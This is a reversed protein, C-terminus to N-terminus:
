FLVSVVSGDRLERSMDVRYKLVDATRWALEARAGPPLSRAASSDLADHLTSRIVARVAMTDSEWSGRMAPEDSHGDADAAEIPRDSTGQAAAVGGAGPTWWRAALPEGGFVALAGFVMCMAVRTTTM